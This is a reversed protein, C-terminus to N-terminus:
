GLTGLTFKSKSMFKVFFLPRPQVGAEEFTLM